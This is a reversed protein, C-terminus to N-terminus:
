TSGSIACRSGSPTLSLMGRDLLRNLESLHRSLSLRAESQSHDPWFLTALTDRAHSQGTAALYALLALAKRRPIKVVAGERELRPAGFLFLTLAAM